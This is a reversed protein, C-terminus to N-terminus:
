FSELITKITKLKEPAIRKLIHICEELAKEPMEIEGRVIKLFYEYEYGYANLFRVIISPTLDIRGHESHNVFADSTGLIHGAKRMSLRRSERLFKLVKAEKTMVKFDSRRNKKKKIKM